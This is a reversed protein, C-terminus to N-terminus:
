GPHESLRKRMSVLPVSTGGAADELDAIATFGAAEYLPRGALTSVLELTRFGEAAAHDECTQLVLRGVGRRVYSPHTYMARVRAPDTAPDLLASNRGASHDGGYMTARRSWGGCGAVIGGVEVLYYTGDTILQRDLGMIAHSSAIQADDLFGRQLVDIALEVLPALRSMDDTRAPRITLDDEPARDTKNM